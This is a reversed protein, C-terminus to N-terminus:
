FLMNGFVYKGTINRDDSLYVLRELREKSTLPLPCPLNFDDLIVADFEYGEEFSGVKGFFSGGGLTAMYFAEELTLPALTDDLLRWRLKSAQVADTMARFVSLSSGGAIDSGLGMPIGEALYRRVPAIGSALNTNSQPCHAIFVGREKLLAIEEDTCHVCHAMITPCDKGGFLGFRDYAEGYFRADPCLEKVWAIEGLNESLHSQVPLRYAKQLASLEDMLADSCSPIFRPTLIPKVNRYKGACNEIWRATDRASAAASEEQLDPSGNRDMNVKGAFTKLGTAELLDMLLETAQGHLTAFISARTTASRKLDETFISYARFAYEPDSYRAEEPFAYTNLWDLLELDMGTGRFRYQPAHLHLDTLGPIILCGSVDRCPIGQYKEPLVPFVGASLGNDCVLYADEMVFLRNPTESYCVTGKLAFTKKNM